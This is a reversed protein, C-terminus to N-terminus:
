IRYIRFGGIVRTLEESTAREADATEDAAM